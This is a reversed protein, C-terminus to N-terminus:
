PNPTTILTIEGTIAGCKRNYSVLEMGSASYRHGFGDRMIICAQIDKELADYNRAGGPDNLQAGKAYDRFAAQRDGLAQETTGLNTWAPGNNPDLQVVKTYADKSRHYSTTPEYYPAIAYYNAGVMFWDTATHAQKAQSETARTADEFRHLHIYSACLFDWSKIREPALKVARELSAASRDWQGLEQQIVALANWGDPWEPKLAAAREFAPAADAPRELGIHYYKSGYARGVLFWAESNQPEARTWAQGYALVRNWDKTNILQQAQDRSYQGQAVGARAALVAAIVGAGLGRM